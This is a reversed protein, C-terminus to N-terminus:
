VKSKARAPKAEPAAAKALNAEVSASAQETAKAVAEFASNAAAVASKVFNRTYDSGPVKELAGDVSELFKAQLEAAKAQAAARQEATAADLLEKVQRGYALAKEPAAQLAAAQLKALEEPGQASLVAKAGETIEALSARAAQLNLAVLKEVGDLAQSNLGSLTELSAKGADAFQNTNLM